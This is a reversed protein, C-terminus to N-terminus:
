QTKFRYSKHVDSGLGMKKRSLHPEDRVRESVQCVLTQQGGGGM